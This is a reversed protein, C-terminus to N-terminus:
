GVWKIVLINFTVDRNKGADWIREPLELMKSDNLGGLEGSCM